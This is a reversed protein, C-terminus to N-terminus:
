IPWLAWGRPDHALATGIIALYALLAGVFCLRRGWETRARRLAFSGLVIYCLLLTLKALLWPTAPSLQLVVLLTIAAVLLATDILYSSWRVWRHNAIGGRGGLVALGRCLFLSGSIVALTIHASRILPYFEIM